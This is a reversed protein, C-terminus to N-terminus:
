SSIQLEPEHLLAVEEPPSVGNGNADTVVRVVPRDAREPPVSSVIGGRGDSLTVSTGPPYPAVVMRFSTVVEEDFLTGSGAVIESVGVAAPAASRYPRESTIADYVDAVAAIRALQPIDDGKLGQPYGSGDHREHHSRVVSKARAGILDGTLMAVGTTPHARILKWEEDDLPGSRQLIDVPIALKGIDHLLLGLGLQVLREATGDFRREGAHDIWGFNRFLRRGIVLGVVAVNVSHQMTYADVTALDAFAVVADGSAELDALIAHVAENLDATLEQSIPSAGRTAVGPLRDFAVTLAKGVQRRTQERLAPPVNIGASLEDDVYVAAIGGERLRALYPAGLRAGARLLPIDGSAGGWVDRGLRTGHEVRDLDVLRM